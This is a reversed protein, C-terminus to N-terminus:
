PVNLCVGGMLIRSINHIDESRGIKNAIAYAYDTVTLGDIADIVIAQDETPNDQSIIIAYSTSQSGVGASSQSNLM